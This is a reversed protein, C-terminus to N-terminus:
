GFVDVGGRAEGIGMLLIDCHSNSEHYECADELDHQRRDLDGLLKGALEARRRAMAEDLDALKARYESWVQLKDDSQLYKM